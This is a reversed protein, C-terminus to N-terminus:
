SVAFIDIPTKKGRIVTAPLSRLYIERLDEDALNKRTEGSIIMETGLEKTLSQLRSAVNVTDGVLLYSLRDPSGLTAAVAQGTHIGIGHKLIPLGKKEFSRNLDVLRKNMDVGAQFAKVAHDPSSVPAGFVAYVEDGLFQLVLGGNDQIAESMERFYSNVIRVVVKPDNKETMPTFDRLDAFLISVEKIEGDLPIRGSLVEDRVEKSVYKGFAEKIMEKERLGTTMENIIDGTYGIEDNSSVRVKRNLIGKSVDRLVSIIEKLPRTINISVLFALGAAAILFIITEVLIVSQLRELIQLPEIGRQLGKQSGHITMHIASLPVISAALILAAIRTGVKIRLTGPTDYLRGEPFLLPALQHQLVHELYFFALSVTILGTVLGRLMAGPALHRLEQNLYIVASFILATSCWVFLDIAVVLYPENLLRKGAKMLAGPEVQKNTLIKKLSRRFPLEYWFMIAPILTFATITILRGTIELSPALANAYDPLMVESLTAAMKWGLLNAFINGVILANSLLLYKCSKM